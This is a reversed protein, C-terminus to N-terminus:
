IELHLAQSQGWSRHESIKSWAQGSAVRGMPQMGGPGSRPLFIFAPRNRSPVSVPSEESPCKPELNDRTAKGVCKSSVASYDLVGRVVEKGRERGEEGLSLGADCDSLEGDEKKEQRM